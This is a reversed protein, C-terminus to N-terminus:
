KKLLLDGEEYVLALASLLLGQKQGTNQKSNRLNM